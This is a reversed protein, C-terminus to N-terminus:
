FAKLMQKIANQKEQSLNNSLNTNLSKWVADFPEGDPKVFCLVMRKYKSKVTDVLYEISNNFYLLESANESHWKIPTISEIPQGTFVAKFQELTTSQDILSYTDRMVAYLEPLDEDPKSNWQFSLIAQPKNETQKLQKEILEIYRRLMIKEVQNNPKISQVFDMENQALEKRTFFKYQEIEALSNLRYELFEKKYTEWNEPTLFVQTSQMIEMQLDKDWVPKKEGVFFRNFLVMAGINIKSKM